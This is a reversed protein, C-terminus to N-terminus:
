IEVISSEPHRKPVHMKQLVFGNIFAMNIKRHLFEDDVFDVEELEKQSHCVWSCWSFIIVEVRLLHRCAERVTQIKGDTHPFVM